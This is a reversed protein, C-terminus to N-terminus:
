SGQFSGIATRTAAVIVVDQMNSSRRTADADSCSRRRIVPIAGSLGDQPDPVRWDGPPGSLLFGRLLLAM